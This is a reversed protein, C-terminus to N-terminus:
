RWWFEASHWMWDWVRVGLLGFAVGVSAAITAIEVLSFEGEWWFLGDLFQLIWILGFAVLVTFAGGFLRDLLTMRTRPERLKPAGSKRLTKAPIATLEEQFNSLWFPNM